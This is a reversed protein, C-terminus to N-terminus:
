DDLKIVLRLYKDGKDFVIDRKDLKTDESNSIVQITQHHDKYKYVEKSCDGFAFALLKIILFLVVAFLAGMLFNDMPSAKKMEEYIHDLVCEDSKTKCETKCETECQTECNEQAQEKKEGCCGGCCGKETKEAKEANETKVTTAQEANTQETKDTEQKNLEVADQVTGDNEKKIEISM